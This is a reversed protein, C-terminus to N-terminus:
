TTPGTATPASAPVIPHPSATESMAIQTTAASTMTTDTRGSVAPRSSSSVAASQLRAQRLRLSWRHNRGRDRLALGRGRRGSRRAGLGGRASGVFGPGPGRGGRRAGRRARRLLPRLPRLPAGGAEPALDGGHASRREVLADAQMRWIWTLEVHDFWIGKDSPCYDLRMGDREEVRMARGCAPCELEVKWGCARCTAETRPLLARCAHCRMAHAEERRVIERWLASADIRRLRAVEGADFWVGGCRACHDLVLEPTSDGPSARAPAREALRVKEMKVGLCVPCPLRAQFANM